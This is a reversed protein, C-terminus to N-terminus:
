HCWRQGGGGVAIHWLEDGTRADLAYFFGDESGGFLLDGATSLLGSKSKPQVRYEWKVEGTQPVIARVASVDKDIPQIRELGGGIFRNGAAYDEDRIFFKAEGDFAMVYILGTRPSYSSSWYNAAGGAPPAVLTGETSPFTNPRRIPRGNVDLGEAWTQKAFPTGLLFEGTERDLVYFTKM